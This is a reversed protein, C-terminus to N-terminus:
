VDKSNGSKKAKEVADCANQVLTNLPPTFTINLESDLHLSEDGSAISHGFNNNSPIVFNYLSSLRFQLFPYKDLPSNM